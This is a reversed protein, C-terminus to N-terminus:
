RTFTFARTKSGAGAPTTVTVTVKGAAHRPTQATIKTASRVVVKKAPTSGFKVATAGTFNAGTIIVNTGGRAPGKNPTVSTVVPKAQKRVFIWAAGTSSNDYPGGVIATSGDSSLAVPGQVASGMAGTGRFKQGQQRWTGNSARTYEWISGAGSSDRPGGVMATNGDGSIAVYEGQEVLPEGFV